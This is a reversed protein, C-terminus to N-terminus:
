LEIIERQLEPDRPGGCSLVLNSWTKWGVGRILTHYQEPISLVLESEDQVERCIQQIAKEANDLVGLKGRIIVIQRGDFELTGHIDLDDLGTSLILSDRRVRLRRGARVTVRLERM